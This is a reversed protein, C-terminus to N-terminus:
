FILLFLLVLERLVGRTTLFGILAILGNWIDTKLKILLFQHFLALAHAATCWFRGLCELM